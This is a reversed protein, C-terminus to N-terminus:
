NEKLNWIRTDRLQIEPLDNKPSAMYFYATSALDDSRYFNTWAEPLNSTALNVVSDKRYIRYMVPADHVTVPILSVHQNQLETM